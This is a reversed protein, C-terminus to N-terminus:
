LEAPLGFRPFLTETDLFYTMETIAGSKTELLILAWPTHRGDEDLRYQAFAPTGCATTPLLRSGKCGIGRGELWSRITQPGQFWLAIPPMSMIADESLLSALEETDYRQFADLYRQLLEAHDEGLEQCGDPVTAGKDQLTARARQVASNVAPITMELTEAVESTSYGLVSSLLLAARQRPPLYQLAAVFALRISERLLMAQAPDVDSPIVQSDPVPELWHERPRHAIEDHITGPPGEEMPRMRRSRHNLADLCVNTAIRYLWTRLSARGDFRDLAKWARVMTEQVADDADMSSGLMRYCHGTLAIRHMELDPPQPSSILEVM